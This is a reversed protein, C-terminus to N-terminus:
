RQYVGDILASQRQGVECADKCTHLVVIALNAVDGERGIGLCRGNDSHGDAHLPQLLIDVDPPGIGVEEVIAPVLRIDVSLIDHIQVLIGVYIM